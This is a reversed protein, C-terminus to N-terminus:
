CQLILQLHVNQHSFVGCICGSAAVFISPPTEWHRWLVLLSPTGEVSKSVARNERKQGKLFIFSGEWETGAEFCSMFTYNENRLFFLFFSCTMWQLLSLMIQHQTYGKEELPFKANAILRPCPLFLHNGLYPSKLHWFFVCSGRLFHKDM